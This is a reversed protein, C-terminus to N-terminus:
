LNDSFLFVQCFFLQFKVQSSAHPVYRKHGWVHDNITESANETSQSDSLEPANTPM